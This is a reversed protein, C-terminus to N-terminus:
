SGTTDKICRGIFGNDCDRSEHSIRNHDQLLQYMKHIKSSWYVGTKGPEGISGANYSLYGYYQYWSTGQYYSGFNTGNWNQMTYGAMKGVVADTPLRWGAPCPDFMTKVNDIWLSIDGSGGGWWYGRGNHTTVTNTYFIWPESISQDVILQGSSNREEVAVGSRLYDGKADYLHRLVSTSINSSMPFPDKRGWQYAYGLTTGQGPTATLAGLDRDMWVAGDASINHVKGGPVDGITNGTGPDYDTVWIHWSWLITGQQKPESYAALLLNGSSGPTVKFMAQGTTELLTLDQILGDPTKETQWVIGVSKINNTGTSASGMRTAYDVGSVPVAEGPSKLMDIVVTTGPSVMYCNAPKEAEPLDVVTLRSDAESVGKVTLSVNYIRNTEVNYDDTNNGGLYVKYSVLKSTGNEQYLGSLEIYTCYDGQGTPATSATKNKPDNAGGTGRLNEPIYWTYGEAINDVVSLYNQFNDANGLPYTPSANVLAFSKPANRLQLRAPTFAVGGAISYTVNIKALKRNFTIQIPQLADIKTLRSATMVMTGDAIGAENASILQQKLDGYTGTFDQLQDGANAVFYLYQDKDPDSKPQMLGLKLADLGSNIYRLVILPDADDGKGDFQFVTINHIANEEDGMDGPLTQGARTHEQNNYGSVSMGVAVAVQEYEEDIIGTANTVKECAVMMISLLLALMYKGIVSSISKKM